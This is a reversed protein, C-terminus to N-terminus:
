RHHPDKENRIRSEFLYAYKLFMSHAANVSIIFGPLGDLLGRKLFYTEIFKGIPKVILKILSPKKGRRLLDQFGLRSFKLNTHIQEEISSFSFHLLPARLHQTEGHVLLQEHVHPESWSSYRRDALRLLYNPYWGGYKIWRNLYFTKRPLYFGRTSGRQTSIRDLQALIEDRCESSVVEDADLNLVWDFSTQSQAFNKQRGYGQWKNYIVKAGLSEAIERTRDTSGSDVVIIEQAWQVSEIARRIHAEENLTIITVSVPQRSQM